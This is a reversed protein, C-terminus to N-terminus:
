VVPPGQLRATSFLIGTISLGCFILLALHMCGLFLGQTAPSVAQEGMNVSFIITIVTMSTLMGMTRMTSALSSAIGYHRPQVSGMISTMNPSSFFAFGTGLLVLMVLITSIGTEKGISAAIGLGLATLVMGATAIRAPVSKDALRGALPSLVAQVAPQCVLIWGTHQPSFGKVVQLYLSFFFTVGFSAAYNILTAINSFAFVRNSMLLGVDLLPSTSRHELVFFGALGAGGAVMLYKGMATTELRAAGYIICFLSLIYVLTGAWDFAEGRADAWEGKLKVLAIALASLQILVTIYFIWRWGLHSVILGGTTPGFSLGCYVSAVVIGMIRGRRAPPFVSTIIAFGSANVMASGVGQFFRLLILMAASGALAAFFTALTFVIFGAIFMKKRGRIDGMRGSPLLFLCAGLVYVTEIMGLQVATASFEHSIAPLAVGVSSMMFPMLFQAVCVVFLVSSESVGEIKQKEMNERHQM